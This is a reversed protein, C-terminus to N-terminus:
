SADVRITQQALREIDAALVALALHGASLLLGFVVL